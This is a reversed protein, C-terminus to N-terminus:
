YNIGMVYNHPFLTNERVTFPRMMENDEHDVIHCHWVYGHGHNPSFSYGAADAPTTAPLDPKAFRVLIRTVMGPLAEVTDKWGIEQPAPPVPPGVLSLSAAPDPNGGLVCTSPALVGRGPAGLGCNYDLPPGFGPISVGAPYPLGTAPDLGGGPFALSYAATYGKVDLAQRNLVQFAVLHPHMPHADATLNLIEWLETEGEHPLESYFSTNWMSAIPTLDGYTRPSKGDYLSNNVLIELPGAKTLVENLTLRRYKNITVGPAPTTGLATTLRVMPTMRVKAGPAAPNFTTDVFGAVAPGVRFQLIKGTTNGNVPAGGQWPTRATNQLELVQGAVTSFDIIVEYREGPMMTVKDNPKVNPNVQQPADLYGQDNGIVWISPGKLGTTKSLLFLEYSRANSGNLFIFRYRKPAVNFYPWAGGNVVITDGVFEPIWYPHQPNIGVNPFYLQGNTDFMRDQIILPVTLNTLNGSTADSLGLPHLGPALAMAPDILVYGGAIGAYVNLRTAGLMHDHFWIPAAEQGNPYTYVAKGALADATGGKSYYGHGYIGNPTWWSDPGGDLVSPVEGGHIHVAAPVPATYKPPPTVASQLGLFGYNNLCPAPLLAPPVLLQAAEYCLNREPDAMGVPDNFNIPPPVTNLSLPDGWILTEDTSTAYAKVNAQNASPLRNHYTMQTPTGRTAVVVPGLYSHPALGPVCATGIQYGWVWTAPSVGPLAGAVPTGAPLVNAQFECISLDIAQNGTLPDTQGLAVPIGAVGNLDLVNLPQVFQPIKSASLPTQVAPAAAVAFAPVSALLAILLVAAL